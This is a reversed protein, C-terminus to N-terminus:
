WTIQWVLPEKGERAAQIPITLTAVNGDSENKSGRLKGKTGNSVVAGPLEIRIQFTRGLDQAGGSLEFAEAASRREDENLPVFLAPWRADPGTPVEVRVYSFGSDTTGGAFRVDGVGLGDFKTFRGKAGRLAVQREFTVGTAASEVADPSGPQALASTILTGQLDKDLRIRISVADDEDCATALFALSLVCLARLLKM